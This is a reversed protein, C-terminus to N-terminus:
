EPTNKMRIRWPWAGGVLSHKHLATVKTRGPGLPVFEVSGICVKMMEKGKSSIYRVVDGGPAEFHDDKQSAM